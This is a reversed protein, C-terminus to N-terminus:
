NMDRVAAISGLFQLAFNDKRSILVAPGSMRVIRQDSLGSNM